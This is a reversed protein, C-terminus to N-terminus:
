GIKPETGKSKSNPNPNPNSTDSTILIAKPIDLVAYSTVSPSSMILISKRFNCVAVSTDSTGTNILISKSLDPIAEPMESAEMATPSRWLDISIVGLAKFAEKAM